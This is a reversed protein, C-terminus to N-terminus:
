RVRRPGHGGGFGNDVFFLEGTPFQQIIEPPTKGSDLRAGRLRRGPAGTVQPPNNRRMSKPRKLGIMLVM